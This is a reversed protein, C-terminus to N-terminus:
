SGSSCRVTSAAPGLVIGAVLWGLGILWLPLVGDPIHLHAM